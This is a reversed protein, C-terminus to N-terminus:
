PIARIGNADVPGEGAGMFTPDTPIFLDGGVGIPLENTLKVRVPRDKQAVIVPGLYSPKSANLDTTNKQYYGRLTTAPLDSHMKQTYQKL